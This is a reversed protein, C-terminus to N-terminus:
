VLFTGVVEREEEEEKENKAPCINKKIQKKNFGLRKTEKKKRSKDVLRREKIVVM